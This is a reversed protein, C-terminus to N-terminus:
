DSDVVEYDFLETNLIKGKRTTDKINYDLKNVVEQLNDYNNIALTVKLQMNITVQKM